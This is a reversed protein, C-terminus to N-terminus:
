VALLELRYGGSAHDATVQVGYRGDLSATFVTAVGAPEAGWRLVVSGDPAMLVVSLSGSEAHSQYQFRVQDGMQFKISRREWGNMSSFSAEWVSRSTHRRLHRTSCAGARSFSFQPTKKSDASM